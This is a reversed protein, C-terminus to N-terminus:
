SSTSRNLHGLMAQLKRVLGATEEIVPQNRQHIPAMQLLALKDRATALQYKIESKKNKKDRAQQRKEWAEQRKKLRVCGCSKIEGKQLANESILKVNGCECYCEYLRWQALYSPPTQDYLPHSKVNSVLDGVTLIGIKLNPQVHIKERKRATNM